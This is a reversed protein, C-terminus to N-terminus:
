DGEVELVNLTLGTSPTSPFVPLFKNTHYKTGFEVSLGKNGLEM